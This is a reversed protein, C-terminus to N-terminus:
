HCVIIIRHRVRTKWKIKYKFWVHPKGCEQKICKRNMILVSIINISFCVVERLIIRVCFCHSPPIMESMILECRRRRISREHSTNQRFTVVISLDVLPERHWRTKVSYYYYHLPYIARGVCLRAFSKRLTVLKTQKSRKNTDNGSWGNTINKNKM